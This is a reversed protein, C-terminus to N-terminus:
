LFDIYANDELAWPSFSPKRTMLYWPGNKPRAPVLTSLHDVWVQIDSFMQNQRFMNEFLFILSGKWTLLGCTFTWVKTRKKSFELPPITFAHEHVVIIVMFSHRTVHTLRDCTKGRGPMERCQSIIKKLTHISTWRHSHPTCMDCPTHQDPSLRLHQNESEVKNLSLIEIKDKRQMCSATHIMLMRKGKSGM